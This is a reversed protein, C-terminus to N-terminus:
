SSKKKRVILLSGGIVIPLGIGIGLGLGLNRGFFNEVFSYVIIDNHITAFIYNESVTISYTDRSGINKQAIRKLDQPDSLDFVYLKRGGAFLKNGVIEMDHIQGGPQIERQPFEYNGCITPHYPDTLNYAQLGSWWFTRIIYNGFVESGAPTHKTSNVEGLFVPNIPNTFDYTRIRGSALYLYENNIYIDGTLSTHNAVKIPLTVNSCDFIEMSSDTCVYLYNNYITFDWLDWAAHTVNEAVTSSLLVPNIPETINLLTVTWNGVGLYTKGRLLYAINDEVKVDLLLEKATLEFRGLRIPNAPQQIDVLLLSSTEEVEQSTNKIALFAIDDQICRISGREGDAFFSTEQEKFVYSGEVILSNEYTSITFFVFSLLLLILVKSIINRKNRMRGIKIIM